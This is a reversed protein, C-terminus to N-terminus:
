EEELRPLYDLAVCRILSHLRYYVQNGKVEPELFFRRLLTDFAKQQDEPPSDFILTLWGQRELPHRSVAGMCLLVAALPYAQYLREFTAEIRKRVLDRLTPSYRDIQPKDDRGDLDPAQKMKEVAAIEAGFESWYLSINSNYPSALIEGAIARLALPHGEYVAIARELYQTEIPCQPTVDWKHFLKLANSPDLGSLICQHSRGLYRGEALVPLQYQSTVIIRSPMLSSRLFGTLFQEFASECFRHGGEGDAELLVEVMDLVLLCPKERLRTIASGVLLTTDRQLEETEATSESLLSRAVMAFSPSECDFSVAIQEPFAPILQPETMLRAALATKGIGSIGVVSVLRCDGQLKSLLTAIAEERGVWRMGQCDLQPITDLFEPDIEPLEAVLQWDVGVADCIAIFCERSIGTPQWFRSLTPRSVNAKSLWRPDTKNWGLQCRARDIRELGQISAKLTDAMIGTVISLM